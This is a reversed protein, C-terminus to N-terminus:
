YINVLGSSVSVNLQYKGNGSKGSIKNKDQIKDQLPIDSKIIGSSVKGNLTFDADEPLDLKLHGSSVEVDIHDTVKDMQIDLQGSSVDAALMGEYQRIKVIGSNVDVSGEKTILSDITIMGSSVDNRFEEVNLHKLDIKGSGLNIDLEELKMPQNKSKGEFVLYGSGVNIDMSRDYSEPIYINLVSKNNFFTFSSFWSRKYEVQISNGSKKISVEGKGDLEAKIDNRKEPIIVTKISSADIDISDINKTVKAEAEGKGFPFLSAVNSTVLLYLGILILFIILIRKM